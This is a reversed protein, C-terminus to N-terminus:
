ARVRAAALLADVDTADTPFHAVGFALEVDATVRAGTPLEVPAAPAQAARKILEVVTATGAPTSEPLLVAFEGAELRGVVDGLRRGQACTKGVRVLIQDAGRRGVREVLEAYGVIAVVILSFPRGHRRSRDIEVRVVRLLERQDFLGTVRDRIQVDALTREARELDARLWAIEAQLSAITPEAM